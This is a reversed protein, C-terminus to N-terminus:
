TSNEGVGESIIGRRIWWLFCHHPQVGPLITAQSVCLCEWSEAVKSSEVVSALFGLCESAWNRKCNHPTM